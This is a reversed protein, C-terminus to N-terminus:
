SGHVLHHGIWAFVEPNDRWVTCIGHQFAQVVDEERREEEHFWLRAVAHMIEHLMTSAAQRTGFQMEVRIVGETHSTEGTRQRGVAERHDFVEVRYDCWGVKVNKPLDGTRTKAM